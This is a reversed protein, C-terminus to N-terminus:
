PLKRRKRCCEKMSSLLKTWKEVLFPEVSKPIQEKLNREEVRQNNKVINKYSICTNENPSHPPLFPSHSRIPISKIQPPHFHKPILHIHHNCLMTLTSFAIWNNLKLYNIEPVERTTWHNLSRRGICHTRTWDRIASSPDWMGQPWFVLVYFLLCITVFEIFVKFITWM